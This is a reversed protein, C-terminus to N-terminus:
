RMHEVPIEPPDDADSPFSQHDAVIIKTPAHDGIPPAQM